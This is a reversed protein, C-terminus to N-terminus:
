EPFCEMQIMLIGLLVSVKMIVIIGREDGIKSKLGQISEFDEKLMENYKQSLDWGLFNWKRM